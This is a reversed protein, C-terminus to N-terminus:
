SRSLRPFAPQTELAMLQDHLEGSAQAGLAECLVDFRAREDQPGPPDDPMGLFSRADAEFRRGDRMVVTLRSSWATPLGSGVRLRVAACAALIGPDRLASEDFSSPSLPDRHLGLALCFPVSYQAQM